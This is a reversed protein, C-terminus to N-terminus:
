QRWVKTRLGVAALAAVAAVNLLIFTFAIRATRDLWSRGHPPHVRPMALRAPSQRSVRLQARREFWAGYGGLLYFVCQASLAAAYVSHRGALALSATLLALLAYPVVLRGIKHSVYQLWVPNVFPVLLRPELWLLQFNGALTRVKRQAEGISDAPTADFALALPEFVVRRRTLVARM